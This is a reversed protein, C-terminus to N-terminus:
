GSRWWRVALLLGLVLAIGAGVILLRSTTSRDSPRYTSVVRGDSAQIVFEDAALTTLELRGRNNEFSIARWLSGTGQQLDPGVFAAAEHKKIVGEPGHVTVYRDGVEIVRKGDRGVFWRAALSGSVKWLLKGALGPYKPSVLYLGNELPKRRTPGEEVPDLSPDHMVLVYRGTRSRAIGERPEKPESATALLPWCSLAILLLRWDARSMRAAWRVAQPPGAGPIM